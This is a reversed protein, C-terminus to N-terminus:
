VASLYKTAGKVLPILFISKVSEGHRQNFQDQRGRGTTEGVHIYNAARYCTGQFQSSDVLTEIMLPTVGFQKPWQQLLEHKAISLVHSALNPVKVWPLILFRSNCVIQQLNKQRAADSWGIWRDRAAMKWAPSSFQMCGLQEDAGMIWYRISAGFPTSAGLYHYRNVAEKWQSQQQSQTVRLLTVPQVEVLNKEIMAPRHLSNEEQTYHTRGRHQGRPGKNKLGPLSIVGQLELKELWQTAEQAKPKGSPREWEFWECLTNALELRSLHPFRTVLDLTIKYQEHTVTAGNFLPITVKAVTM